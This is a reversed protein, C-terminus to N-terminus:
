GVAQDSAPPVSLRATLLATTDAASRPHALFFGQALDCQRERLFDLQDSTEVGEAVVRKGLAHAMKIITEALTSATVSHPIEEIFSRDIKIAQVPHQRLYGLSSYGTGFDDLSLRVGLAALRRLSTRADDDAFASETLEIELMEPPVGVRDLARRVLTPFEPQRLQYVSVNLALREPAIGQERWIALQNCATELVWAGIDVILGAPYRMPERPPQWRLLAELGVLSGSRVDFQPQYYLSFERKRLAKFLGSDAAASPMREMKRDYFAARSRGGAKAQYMALDANRM